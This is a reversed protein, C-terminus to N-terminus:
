GTRRRRDVFEVTQPAMRKLTAFGVSDNESLADEIEAPFAEAYNIAARVKLEPWQLHRAVRSLDAKYSRVLLMVEWVALSSGQVCAQRGAASDRFDIFAFESRRLGEEVLRASTDSPTWGHQRALRKLRKGSTMPLRMSLVMSRVAKM